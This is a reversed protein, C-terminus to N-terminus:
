NMTILGSTAYISFGTPNVNCRILIICVQGYIPFPGSLCPHKLHVAAYGLSWRAHNSPNKNSTGPHSVHLRSHADEGPILGGKGFRFLFAGSPRIEPAKRKGKRVIWKMRGVPMIAYANQHKLYELIDFKVVCVAVCFTICKNIFVFYLQCSILYEM